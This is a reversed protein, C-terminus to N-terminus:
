RRSLCMRQYKSFVVQSRGDELMIIGEGGDVADLRWCSYLNLWYVDILDVRAIPIASKTEGEAWLKKM